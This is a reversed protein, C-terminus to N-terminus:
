EQVPHPSTHRPVTCVARRLAPLLRLRDTYVRAGTGEGSHGLLADIVDPHQGELVLHTRLTKRLVHFPRRHYVEAPVDSRLWAARVMKRPDAVQDLEPVLPGSGDLTGWAQLEAELAPHVPVLRGGYGGKSAADPLDLWREGPEGRLWAARAQRAENVRLGTYRLLLVLRSVAGRKAVVRRGGGGLAEILADVQEWTAARSRAPPPVRVSWSPVPPVDGLEDRREWAWRWVDLLVGIVNMASRDSRRRVRVASAPSRLWQWLDDLVGRSLHVVRWTRRSNLSELGRHLLDLHSARTRATTPALTGRTVRDVLYARTVERLPAAGGPRPPQWREGRATAAEIQEKWAYATAADRLTLSRRREEVPCDWRLLYSSGGGKRARKRVQAM